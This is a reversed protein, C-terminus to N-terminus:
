IRFYNRPLMLICCNHGGASDPYSQFLAVLTPGGVFVYLRSPTAVLVLTRDGPLEQQELGHIPEPVDEFSYLEKM